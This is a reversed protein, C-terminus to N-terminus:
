HGRIIMKLHNKTLFDTAQESTYYYSCSRMKNVTWKKFNEESPDSWLLDCILGKEPVEVM